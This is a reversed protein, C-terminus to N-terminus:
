RKLVSMSTRQHNKIASKVSRIVALQDEDQQQISGAHSNSKYVNEYREAQLQQHIGTHQDSKYDGYAKAGTALGKTISALPAFVGFVAGLGGTAYTIAVAASISLTSVIGIWEPIKRQKAWNRTKEVMEQSQDQLLRNLKQLHSIETASHAAHQDKLEKQRMGHFFLRRLFHSEHNSHQEADAENLDRKHYLHKNVDQITKQMDKLDVEAPALKPKVSLPSVSNTQTDASATPAAPKSWFMSQLWEGIRRFLSPTRAADGTSASSSPSLTDKAQLSAPSATGARQLTEHPYPASVQPQHYRSDLQVGM